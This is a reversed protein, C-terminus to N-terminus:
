QVSSGTGRNDIFPGESLFKALDFCQLPQLIMPICPNCKCVELFDLFGAEIDDADWDSIPCIGVKATLVHLSRSRVHIIRDGPGALCAEFDDDIEVPCRLGLVAPFM